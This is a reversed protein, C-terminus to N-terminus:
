RDGPAVVALASAIVAYPADTVVHAMGDCRYWFTIYGEHSLIETVLAPNAARPLLTKSM